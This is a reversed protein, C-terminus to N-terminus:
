DSHEVGGQWAPDEHESGRGADDVSDADGDGFPIALNRNETGSSRAIAHREGLTKESLSESLLGNDRDDRNDRIGAESLVVPSQTHRDDEEVWPPDDRDPVPDDRGVGSGSGSDVDPSM